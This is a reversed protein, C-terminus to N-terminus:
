LLGSNTARAARVLEGLQAAVAANAAAREAEIAPQAGAVHAWALRGVREFGRSLSANGWPVCAFCRARGPEDPAAYEVLALGLAVYRGDLVLLKAHLYHYHETDAM